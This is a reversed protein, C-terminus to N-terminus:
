HKEPYSSIYYYNPEYFRRFNRVMEFGTRGTIGLTHTNKEQGGGQVGKLPDQLDIVATAM